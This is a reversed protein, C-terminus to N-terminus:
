NSHTSIAIYDIIEEEGGNGIVFSNGIRLSEMPVKLLVDGPDEGGPIDRDVTV